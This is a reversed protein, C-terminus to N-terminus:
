GLNGVIIQLRHAEPCLSLTSENLRGPGPQPCYYCAVLLVADNNNGLSVFVPWVAQVICNDGGRCQKWRLVEDMLCFTVLIIFTRIERRNTALRAQLSIETCKQSCPAEQHYRPWIKIEVDPSSDYRVRGSGPGQAGTLLLMDNCMVVGVVLIGM